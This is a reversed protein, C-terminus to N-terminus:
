IYLKEEALYEIPVKIIQMNPAFDAASIQSAWCELLVVCCFFHWLKDNFIKSGDICKPLTDRLYIIKIM